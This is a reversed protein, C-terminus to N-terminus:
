EQESETDEGWKYISEYLKAIPAEEEEEEVPQYAIHIM